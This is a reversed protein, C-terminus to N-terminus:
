TDGLEKICDSRQLSVLSSFLEDTNGRVKVEDLAESLTQVRFSQIFVLHFCKRERSSPFCCVVNVTAKNQQHSDINETNFVGLRSM